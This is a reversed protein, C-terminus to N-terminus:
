QNFRERSPQQKLTNVVIPITNNAMKAIIIRNIAGVTQASLAVVTEAM